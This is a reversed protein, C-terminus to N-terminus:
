LMVKSSQISAGNNIQVILLGKAFVSADLSISTNSALKGQQLVQGNIQILKFTVAYNNTNTIIIQTQLQKIQVNTGSWFNCAAIASYNKTGDINNTIIRYNNIGNNPKTDIFCFPLNAEQKGIITNQPGHIKEIEYHLVNSNHNDVWTIKVGENVAVAKISNISLPTLSLAYKTYFVNMTSASTLTNALIPDLDFDANDSFKGTLYLNNNAITIGTGQSLSDSLKEAFVFNGASDQVAIYACKDPANLLRTNASADFDINNGEFYGTTYIRDNADIEMANMLEYNTGGFTNVWKYNGLTDYCAVYADYFGNSIKLVNAASPDFDATGDFIGAIYINNTAGLRIDHVSTRYNGSNNRIPKVFVLNGNPTYKAFYGGIQAANSTQLLATGTTSPDFDNGSYAYQGSIYINNNKDLILDQATTMKGTIVKGWVYNGLSDYKCFFMNTYSMGVTFTSAATPSPDMDITVSNNGAAKGNSATYINKNNDVVINDVNGFFSNTIQKAFLCHGSTDYKAFFGGGGNGMSLTASTPDFDMTGNYEGAMYIGSSDLAVDNVYESSSSGITYAWILQNSPNLKIMYINRNNLATLTFVGPGPDADMNRSHMGILYTNGYADILAQRPEAEAAVNVLPFSVAGSFNLQAKCQLFVFLVAVILSLRFFM